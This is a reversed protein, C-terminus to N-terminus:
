FRFSKKPRFFARRRKLRYEFDEAFFIDDIVEDNKADIVERGIHGRASFVICHKKYKEKLYRI